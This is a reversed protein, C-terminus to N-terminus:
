KRDMRRREGILREAKSALEELAKDHEQLINILLDIVYTQNELNMDDGLTETQSVGVTKLLSLLM